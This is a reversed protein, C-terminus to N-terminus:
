FVNTQNGAYHPINKGSGSTEPYGPYRQPWCAQSDILHGRTGDPMILYIHMMCLYVLMTLFILIRYGLNMSESHLIM